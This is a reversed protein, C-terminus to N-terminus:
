SIDRLHGELFEVGQRLADFGMPRSFQFVSVNRAVAVCALFAAPKYGMCEALGLRYVNQMLIEIVEAGHLRNISPTGGDPAAHLQYVRRLPRPETPNQQHRVPLLYKNYGRLEREVGRGEYGLAAIADEWLRIQNVGPWVQINGNAGDRLFCVDDAIVEHGRAALAAVLTSKGAGSEGVFAICGDAVDIASAHLPIIGRQHCLVGFVTGLLYACLDRDSSAPVQDVLIEEGGRILYRAVRPIDLLLENGNCQGDPFTTVVESLTKLIHARRIVIGNCDPVNNRLPTLVSLPLDSIIRLGALGYAKREVPQSSVCKDQRSEDSGRLRTANNAFERGKRDILNLMIGFFGLLSPISPLKAHMERAEPQCFVLFPKYNFNM